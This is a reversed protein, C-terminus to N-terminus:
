LWSGGTNVWGGSSTPQTSQKPAPKIREGPEMEAVGIKLAAMLAYVEADFWHNEGSARWYYRGKMRDFVRKESVLHKPYEEPAHDSYNFSGYTGAPRQYRKHLWRKLGDTNLKWLVLSRSPRGARTYHVTGPKFLTNIVKDDGKIPFAIGSEDHYECFDYVEDTFAGSDIACADIHMGDWLHMLKENLRQWVPMINGSMKNDPELNGHLQGAAILWSTMDPGHGWARVVYWLRDASCDVGMTLAAAEAPVWDRQYNQRLSEVIDSDTGKGAPAWLQGFQVNLVAKEKAEQDKYAASRAELLKKARKAITGGPFMSVLGPIWFSAVSNAPVDGIVDGDPTIRQYRGNVYRGLANARFKDAEDMVGRCHPCQIRAHAASDDINGMDAILLTSLDPIFYQSCHKCPIAWEMRTGSRWLTVTPDPVAGPFDWYTLKTDPNWHREAEGETATSTVIATFGPYTNGRADIIDRVDGERKNAAIRSYEDIFVVGMPRSAMQAASRASLMYLKCGNVTVKFTQFAQGKATGAWLEPTERLMPQIRDQSIDKVTLEDPGFFGMPVPALHLRMGIYNIIVGETKSVQSAAWVVVTDIQPSDVAELIDRIWPTRESSWRGSEAATKPLRRYKDAWTHASMRKPPSFLRAMQLMVKRYNHKTVPLM